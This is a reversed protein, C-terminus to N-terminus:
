VTKKDTLVDILQRSIRRKIVRQHELHQNFFYKWLLINTMVISFGLLFGGIVDTGWHVHIMVRSFGIMLALILMLLFFWVKLSMKKISDKFVYWIILSCVIGMTAHGSPFSYDHLQVLWQLPRPRQIITKIIPFLFLGSIMTSVFITLKQMLKKRYLYVIVILGMLWISWFNFFKDIQLGITEIIPSTTFLSQIHNDFNVFSVKNTHIRQALVCFNIIGYINLIVAVSFSKKIFIKENRFYWILFIIWIIILVWLTLFKWLKAAILDYSEGLFYWVLVRTISRFINSLASFILLKRRSIKLSGAVFPLLWRTRWYFKSLFTGIMLNNTLINQIKGLITDSIKIYKEYKRLLSLGYHEWMYYAIIDGIRGGIGILIIIIPLSFIKMQAFFGAILVANQWPILFGLLPIGECIEFIFLLIYWVPQIISIPVQM